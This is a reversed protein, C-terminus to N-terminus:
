RYRIVNLSKIEAELEAIRANFKYSIKAADEILQVKDAAFLEVQKEARQLKSELEEVEEDTEKFLSSMVDTLEILIGAAKRNPFQGVMFDRALTRGREILTGESM